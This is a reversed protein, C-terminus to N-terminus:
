RQPVRAKRHAGFTQQLAYVVEEENEPYVFAGFSMRAALDVYYDQNPQMPADESDKVELWGWNTGHFISLDPIGQVYSTDNKLVVCGPFQRRLRRIFRAQYRNEAM